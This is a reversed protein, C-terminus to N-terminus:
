VCGPGLKNSSEWYLTSLGSVIVTTNSYFWDHPSGNGLLQNVYVDMGGIKCMLVQTASFSLSALHVSRLRVQLEAFM